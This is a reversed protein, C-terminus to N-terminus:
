HRRNNDFFIEETIKYIDDKEIKLDRELFKKYIHPFELMRGSWVGRQYANDQNKGYRLNFVEKEKEFFIFRTLKNLERFEVKDISKFAALWDVHILRYKGDPKKDNRCVVIINQESLKVFEPLCILKEILAKDTIISKETLSTILKGTKSTWRTADLLGHETFFSEVIIRVNYNTSLQSGNRGYFKLSISPGDEILVDSESKKLGTIECNIGNMRLFVALVSEFPSSKAFGQQKMLIVKSIAQDLKGLYPSHKISSLIDDMTM